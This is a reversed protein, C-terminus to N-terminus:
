GKQFHRCKAGHMELAVSVFMAWGDNRHFKNQFIRRAEGTGVSSFPIQHATLAFRQEFDCNIVADIDFVRASSDACAGSAM